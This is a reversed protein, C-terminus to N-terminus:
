AGGPAAEPEPMDGYEIVSPDGHERIFIAKL